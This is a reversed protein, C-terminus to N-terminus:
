VNSRLHSVDKGRVFVDYYYGDKEATGRFYQGGGGHGTGGSYNPGFLDVPTLPEDDPDRSNRIRNANTKDGLTVDLIDIVLDKSEHLDVTYGYEEQKDQINNWARTNSIEDQSEEKETATVTPSAGLGLPNSPFMGNPDILSIPNGMVYNYPSWAGYSDALLDVANWRGIAPDYWRAGYDYLGLEESFEKGNYRYRQAEAADSNWSGEMEMGFPYYHNQQLIENATLTADNNQDSFLLRTNGLPGAPLYDPIVAEDTISRNLAFAGLQQHPIFSLTPM